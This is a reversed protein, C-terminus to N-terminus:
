KSIRSTTTIRNKNEKAQKYYIKEQIGNTRHGVQKHKKRLLDNILTLNSRLSIPKM